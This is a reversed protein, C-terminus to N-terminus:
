KGRNDAPVPVSAQPAPQQQGGGILEIIGLVVLLLVVLLVVVGLTPQGWFVFVLVAVLIAAVRLLRIHAATWAGAPGTRLGARNGRTRLWDIGNVVGHRISVAAGSPGALFAGAAVVLGVLLLVRLGQKIFRVLTDYLAAAADSPLVSQPVSNLYIARTIAMGIALVLMSAALGLAAGILGRRHRRAIGIGAALLALALLPLVWKLTTLLRYGRQAKDLNTAAFLPFDAKVVPIKQVITIGRAVLQDKVQTILPGIHLVVEGNVLSLSGNGQGSLVQVVATHSVRLAQAWLAAVAPSAVARSVTTAILNNVGSVIQGSFSQLLTSLRPLNASALQASAQTVVAHVDVRSTIQDTIKASLASQIAPDHILPTMNAVYRDTNSVQNAAWVGLVSVPALVCGLIIALAAVPARWRGGAPRARSGTPGGGAAQARLEGVEARLRELEANEGAEAPAATGGGEAPTGTGGVVAPGAIGGGEAPAGTGSAEAPQGTEGVEAPQGTGGAEAPAGTGGAEAPAGTGGAEATAGTGGPEAGEDLGAPEAHRAPGAQDDPPQPKRAGPVGAQVRSGATSGPERDNASM